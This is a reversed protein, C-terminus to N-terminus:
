GNLLAVAADLDASIALPRAHGRSEVILQSVTLVRAVVISVNCLVVQGGRDEANKRMDVFPLLAVSSIYEVNKLDLIARPTELSTIEQLVEDRFRCVQEYENLQRDLVEIVLIGAHDHTTIHQFSSTM